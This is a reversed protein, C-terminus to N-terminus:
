NTMNHRSVLKDESYKNKLKQIEQNMKFTALYSMAMTSYTIAIPAGVIKGPFAGIGIGGLPTPSPIMGTAGAQVAIALYEVVNSLQNVVDLTQDLAEILNKGKVLPQMNTTDNGAILEIGPKGRIPGKLSNKSETKTVLKLSERGVLRICDAKALIASRGQPAGYRGGTSINFASDIDTKQSMYFTAADKSPSPQLFLREEVVKDGDKKINTEKVDRGHLGAILRISSAHTHGAGGYGDQGDGPRDRGMIIFNNNQGEIVKEQGKILLNGHPETIHTHDVGGADGKKREILQKKIQSVGETSVAKVIRDSSM